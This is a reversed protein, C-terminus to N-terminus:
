LPMSWWLGSCCVGFTWLEYPEVGALGRAEVILVFQVIYAPVYGLFLLEIRDLLAQGVGEVKNVLTAGFGIWLFWSCFFIGVSIDNGEFTTIFERFLLSQAGITFAGFAFIMVARAIGCLRSEPGFAGERSDTGGAPEDSRM